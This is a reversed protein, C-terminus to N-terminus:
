DAEPPVKRHRSHLPRRKEPTYASENIWTTGQVDASFSAGAPVLYDQASQDDGTGTATAVRDSDIGKDRVLYDKVNVARQEAFYEVKAYQHRAAIRERRATADKEAATSDAVVVLKAEPRSELVLAIGDLCAKAENSVRTPRKKDLSFSLSCLVQVHPPPPPPPAQVTVMTEATASHNKDDQVNCAITVAGTPAGAASFTATTGVGSIKGGSASYSYTLPRNQPSAGQCTIASTGGPPLISPSATCSVTPPDFDKVAFSTSCTASEGPKRGEKGPRGEKVEGNVAYTGQNLAGTAIQFRPGDGTVGAGTGSWQYLVSTHKKRSVSSATATVTVPEGPYIASPAAGCALKIPPAKKCGVALLALIFSACFVHKWRLLSDKSM